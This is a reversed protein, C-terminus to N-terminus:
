IIRYNEENQLLLSAGNLNCNNFTVGILITDNMLNNNTLNCNNFTVKKLTTKTFNSNEVSCENFITDELTTLEFDSQAMICNNFMIDILHSNNYLTNQMECNEFIISSLNNIQIHKLKTNSFDCDEFHAYQINCYDLMANEFTANDIKHYDENISTKIFKSDSLDCDSFDCNEIEAGSFDCSALGSSSFDCDHLDSNKFNTTSLYMNSLDLHTYPMPDGYERNVQLVQGELNAGPGIFYGYKCIWNEPLSAPCARKFGTHEEGIIIDLNAIKGKIGRMSLIMNMEAGNFSSGTVDTGTLISPGFVVPTFQRQVTGDDYQVVGTDLMGFDCETINCNNFNTSNFQCGTFNSYKLNMMELDLMDGFSAPTYSNYRAEYNIINTSPGFIYGHMIKYGDDLKPPKDYKIFGSYIEKLNTNRLDTGNLITNKLSAKRLDSGSLNSGSLNAGELNTKYLNRTRLDVNQLNANMLEYRRGVLSNEDECYKLFDKDFVIGTDPDSFQCPAYPPKNIPDQNYLKNTIHLMHKVRNIGKEYNEILNKRENPNREILKNLQDTGIKKIFEYLQDTNLDIIDPAYKDVYEDHTIGLANVNYDLYQKMYKHTLIIPLKDNFMPNILIFDWNSLIEIVREMNDYEQRTIHDGHLLQSLITITEETIFDFLSKGKLCWIPQKTIPHLIPERKKIKNGKYKMYNILTTCTNDPKFQVLHNLKGENYARQYLKEDNIESPLTQRMKQLRTKYSELNKNIYDIQSRIEKKERDNTEKAVTNQYEPRRGRMMIQMLNNNLKLRISNTKSIRNELLEIDPSWLGRPIPKELIEEQSLIDINGSCPQDVPRVCNRFKYSKKSKRRKSKRRKSKRRKSKRRKSKKPGPKRRCSKSGKRRGRKCKSRTTM